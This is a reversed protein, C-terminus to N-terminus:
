PALTVTVASSGLTTGPFDVVLIWDGVDTLSIAPSTYSTFVPAKEHVLAGTPSYLRYGAQKTNGHLGTFVVTETGTAAFVLAANQGYAANSVTVSGGGIAGAFVTDPPVDWITATLTGTNSSSPSLTLRYTGTEPLSTRDLFPTGCNFDEKLKVGSPSYIAVTPCGTGSKVFTVLVSQGATGDFTITGNQGAVTMAVAIAPGGITGILEPDPPLLYITVRATGTTTGNPNLKWRYTGTETLVRPERFAFGCSFDTDLTAGSPSVLTYNTCSMDSTSISIRDGASATFEVAGNLGPTTLPVAVVSGGAVAQVVPDPPLVWVTTTAGTGTATGTDVFLTYTGDDPLSRVDSFATGCTFETWLTVGTPGTLVVDDCGNGAYLSSISVRMGAVGEFRQYIEAGVTGVPTTFSKNFEPVVDEEDVSLYVTFTVPVTSTSSLTYAGSLSTEEIESYFSTGPNTYFVQAGVPDVFKVRHSLSATAVVAIETGAELCLRPSPDGPNWVLPLDLVMNGECCAGGICKGTGCEADSTCEPCLAWDPTPDPQYLCGAGPACTEVTCPDGDDCNVPGGAMCGSAGCVDPGTCANGDSCATGVLKSRVCLGADSCTEATCADGDDCDNAAACPECGPIPTHECGLALDCGDDTCPDGDSCDLALCPAPGALDVIRFVRRDVAVLADGAGAAELVVTVLRGGWHEEDLTLTFVPGSGQQAGDITWRMAVPIAAEASAIAELTVMAGPLVDLDTAPVVIQAAAECADGIGDQNTDKQAANPTRLCNDLADILGDGDTDSGLAGDVLCGNSADRPCPDALDGVGDDDTDPYLPDTARDLGAALEAENSVGDLDSDGTPSWPSTDVGQLPPASYGLVADLGAYAILWSHYRLMALDTGPAARQLRRAEADATTEEPDPPAWMSSALVHAVPAGPIPAGGYRVLDEFRGGLRSRYEGCVTGDAPTLMVPSGVDIQAAWAVGSAVLQVGLASEPHQRATKPRVLYTALAEKYNALPDTSLSPPLTAALASILTPTADATGTVWTRRLVPGIGDVRMAAIIAEDGPVRTPGMVYPATANNDEILSAWPDTISLLALGAPDSLDVDGKPAGAVFGLARGTASAYFAIGEGELPASMPVDAYTETTLLYEVAYLSRAMPKSTALGPDTGRWTEDLDSWGDGDTDIPIASALDPSSGRLLEDFHTWGDQDTDDALDDRLPDLGLTLETLDLVGDSDTDRLADDDGAALLWTAEVVTEVGAHALRAVVSHAGNRVFTVAYAGDDRGAFAEWDDMAVIQDPGGDISVALVGPGKITRPPFVNVTVRFSGGMTAGPPSLSLGAADPTQADLTAASLSAVSMPPARLPAPVSGAINGLLVESQLGTGPLYLKDGNPFTVTVGALGATAVAGFGWGLDWSGIIQGHSGMLSAQDTGTEGVALAPRALAGICLWSFALGTFLRTNM